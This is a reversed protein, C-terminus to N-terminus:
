RERDQTRLLLNISDPTDLRPASGYGNMPNRYFIMQIINIAGWVVAATLMVYSLVECIAAMRGTNFSAVFFGFIGSRVFVSYLVVHRKFKKLSVEIGSDTIRQALILLERILLGWVIFEMWQFRVTLAFLCGFNFIKDAISDQLYGAVSPISFRRAIQGDVLDSAVALVLAVLCVIILRPHQPRFAALVLGGLCSRFVALGLLTRGWPRRQKSIDLRTAPSQMRLGNVSQSKVRDTRCREGYAWVHQWVIVVMVVIDFILLGIVALSPRVSGHAVPIAGYMFAFTYIVPVALLLAQSITRARLYRKDRSSVYFNEWIYHGEPFLGRLYEGLIGIMVHHQLIIYTFVLSIVPPIAALGIEKLINQSTLTASVQAPAVLGLYTGAAVIYAILTQDRLAIRQRVEARAASYFQIKQNDPVDDM